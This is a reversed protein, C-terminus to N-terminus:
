SLESIDYMSSRVDNLAREFRDGKMGTERLAEPLPMKVLSARQGKTLFMVQRAIVAAPSDGCQLGTLGCVIQRQVTQERRCRGLIRSPLLLSAALGGMVLPFALAATLCLSESSVAQGNWQVIAYLLAGSTGGFLGVFLLFVGVQRLDHCRTQCWARFNDPASRLTKGVFEPDYGDIVMNLGLRYTPHHYVDSRAFLDVLALIGERRALWAMAIFLRAILLPEDPVRQRWELPYAFIERRDESSLGVPLACLACGLFLLLTPWIASGRFIGCVGAGFFATGLLWYLVTERKM